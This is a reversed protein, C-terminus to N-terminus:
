IYCQLHRPRFSTRTILLSFMDNHPEPSQSIGESFLRWSQTLSRAFLLFCRESVRVPVVADRLGFKLMVTGSEDGHDQRGAEARAVMDRVCPLNPLIHLLLYNRSGLSARRHTHEVM